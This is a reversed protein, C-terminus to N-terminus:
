RPSSSKRMATDEDLDAVVEVAGNPDLRKAKEILEDAEPENGLELQDLARETLNRAEEGKDIGTM